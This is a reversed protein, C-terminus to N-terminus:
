STRVYHLIDASTGTFALTLVGFSLMDILLDPLLTKFLKILLVKLILVRQYM